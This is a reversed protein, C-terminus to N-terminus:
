KNATKLAQVIRHAQTRIISVRGDYGIGQVSKDYNWWYNVGQDHTDENIIPLLTNKPNKHKKNTMYKDNWLNAYVNYFHQVSDKTTYEVVDILELASTTADAPLQKGMGISAKFQADIVTLPRQDHKSPDYDPVEELQAM